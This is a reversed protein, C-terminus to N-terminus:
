PRRRAWRALARALRMAVYRPARPCRARVAEGARLLRQLSM